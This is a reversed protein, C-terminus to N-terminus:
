GGPTNSQNPWPQSGNRILQLEDQYINLFDKVAPADLLGTETILLNIPATSRHILRELFVVLQDDVPERYSFMFRQSHRADIAGALWARKPAKRRDPVSETPAAPQGSFEDPAIEVSYRYFLMVKGRKVSRNSKIRLLLEKPLAAMLSSASKVGFSELLNNVSPMRLKINYLMEILDLVLRNTWLAHDLGFERPSRKLLIEKVVAKQANNLKSPRGVANQTQLASQGGQQYRKYWQKVFGRRCGLVHAVQDANQWEKMLQAALLRVQFSNERNIKKQEM